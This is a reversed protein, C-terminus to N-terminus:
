ALTVAVEVWSEEFDPEAVTAILLGRGVTADTEGEESLAPVVATVTVTVPV